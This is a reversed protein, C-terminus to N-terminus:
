HLVQQTSITNSSFPCSRFHSVAQPLVLKL